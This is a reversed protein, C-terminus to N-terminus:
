SHPRREPPSCKEYRSESQPHFIAISRSGQIHAWPWIFCMYFLCVQKVYPAVLIFTTVYQEYQMHTFDIFKVCITKYSLVSGCFQMLRVSALESSMAWIYLDHIQPMHDQPMNNHWDECRWSFVFPRFQMHAFGKWKACIHTFGCVLKCHLDM